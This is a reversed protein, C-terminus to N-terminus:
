SFDFLLFIGLLAIVWDALVRYVVLWVRLWCGLGGFDGVSEGSLWGFELNAYVLANSDYLDKPNFLNLVNGTYFKEACLLVNDILPLYLTLVTWVALVAM